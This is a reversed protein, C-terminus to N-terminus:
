GASSQRVSCWRPAPRIRLCRPRERQVDSITGRVGGVGDRDCYRIRGVRRGCAPSGWVTRRWRTLPVRELSASSAERDYRHSCVLPGVTVSVSPLVAVGDNVAGLTPRALLIMSVSVTVSEPERVSVSVTVMVTFSEGLVGGETSAPLGCVTDSPSLTDRSPVAESASGSSERVYAQVSLLVASPMAGALGAARSVENVAGLTAALVETRNVSFTDSPVAELVSVTSTVMWSLALVGGETSAPFGWVTVSPLATDSLPVAM